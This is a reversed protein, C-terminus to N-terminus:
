FALFSVYLCSAGLGYSLFSQKMINEKRQTTQVEEMDSPNFELYAALRNPPAARWMDWAIVSLSACVLLLLASLVIIGVLGLKANTTPSFTM